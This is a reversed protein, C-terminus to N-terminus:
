RIRHLGPAERGANALAARMAETATQAQSLTASETVNVIKPRVGQTTTCTLM